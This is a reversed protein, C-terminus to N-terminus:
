DSQGSLSLGLQEIEEESLLNRIALLIKVENGVKGIGQIYRRGGGNGGEPPPEIQNFPINLVENVKDVVLGIVTDNLNVVIICTREDYERTPLHFRRRVDMVPIVKGRLNIIGIIFSPMDPVETLTQIEKIETVYKIDIGIDIGYDQNGLHFTLYKGEKFDEQDRVQDDDFTFQSFNEVM